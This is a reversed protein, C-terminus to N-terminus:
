DKAVMLPLRHILRSRGVTNRSYLHLPALDVEPTSRLSRIKWELPFVLGRRSLATKYQSRADADEYDMGVLIPLGKYKM